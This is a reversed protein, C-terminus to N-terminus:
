KRFKNQSYHEDIFKLETVDGKNMGSEPARLETFNNNVVPSGSSFSVVKVGPNVKLDQELVDKKKSDPIGFTLVADKNFGLDRNRFFDMQQAVVLTGIIMIQSIVFQVIVLSKRLTLRLLSGSKANRLTVAPQYASQVFAPYVGSLLIVVVLILLILSIVSPDILQHSNIRIDLWSSLQPLLLNTALLGLGLSLLVLISTEGLFQTMLQWRGAGLVKRVGVEKARKSAQATALNIFNICAIVIVLLAVVILGWYTERSTTPSITNNLYRQDFHIDRLPQPILRAEKAIDKGWNKAIFAPLKAVFQQISYNEPIVIYSFSGGNIWYFERLAGGLDKKITEFSVLFTFPLHTNGPLDHILGTVKLNQQNNLQLIKGMPDQGGFYKRAISETLVVTNPEALATKPNGYVWEYDFIQTFHEDAYGFGKEEYRTQDIKVLGSYQYLFQSVQELEPFDVRLAPVVAMSVSPNFDLANLTVRYTRNAKHYFGDYGLEYRVVLFIVLCCAIGLSLGFVNILAYGANRRINRFATIFYNRLM